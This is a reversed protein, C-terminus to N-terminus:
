VATPVQEAPSQPFITAASHFIWTPFHVIKSPYKEYKLVQHSREVANKAFAPPPLTKKISSKPSSRSVPCAKRSALFGDPPKFTSPIAAAKSPVTARM